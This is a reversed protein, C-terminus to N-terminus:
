NYAVRQNWLNLFESFLLCPNQIVYAKRRGRLVKNQFVSHHFLSTKKQQPLWEGGSWSFCVAFQFCFPASIKHMNFAFAHSTHSQTHINFNWFPFSESRATAYLVSCEEGTCVGAQGFSGMEAHVLVPFHVLVHPVAGRSKCICDRSVRKRWGGHGLDPELRVLPSCPSAPLYMRAQSLSPLGGPGLCSRHHWSGLASCEGGAAMPEGAGGSWTAVHQPLLPWARYLLGASGAWAHWPPEGPSTHWPPQPPQLWPPSPPMASVWTSGSGYGRSRPAPSPGRRGSGSSATGRRCTRGWWRAGSSWPPGSPGSAAPARGGSQPPWPDREGPRLGQPPWRPSWHRRASCGHLSSPYGARWCCRCLCPTCPAVAVEWRGERRPSRYPGRGRGLWREKWTWRGRRGDFVAVQATLVQRIEWAGAGQLAMGATEREKRGWHVCTGLKCTSHAVRCKNERKCPKCRPDRPEAASPAIHEAESSMAFSFSWCTAKRLSPFWDPLSVLSHDVTCQPHEHM